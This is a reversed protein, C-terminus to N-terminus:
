RLTVTWIHDALNQVSVRDPQLIGQGPGREQMTLRYRYRSQYPKLKWPLVSLRKRM